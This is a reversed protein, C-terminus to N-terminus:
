RRARQGVFGGPLSEAVFGVSKRTQVMGIDRGDIIEVGLIPTFKRTISNAPEPRLREWSVM